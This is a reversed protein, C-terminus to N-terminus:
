PETVSGCLAKLERAGCFRPVCAIHKELACSVLTRIGNVHPIGLLQRARSPVPWCALYGKRVLSQSSCLLVWPASGPPRFRLNRGALPDSHAIGSKCTHPCQRTSFGTGAGQRPNPHAGGLGKPGPPRAKYGDPGQARKPSSDAQSTSTRGCAQAHSRGRANRQKQGVSGTIGRSLWHKVRQEKHLPREVTHASRAVATRTCNGQDRAALSACPGLLALSCSTSLRRASQTCSGLTSHVIVM